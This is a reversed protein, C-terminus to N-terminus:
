PFTSDKSTFQRTNQQVNVFFNLVSFYYYLLLLLVNIMISRFLFHPGVLRSYATIQRIGGTYSIVVFRLCARGYMEKFDAGKGNLTESIKCACGFFLLDRAGPSGGIEIGADWWKKKNWYHCNFVLLDKLLNM